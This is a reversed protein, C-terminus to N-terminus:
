KLKGSAVIRVYVNYDALSAFDTFRYLRLRIQKYNGDVSNCNGVFCHYAACSGTFQFNTVEFPLNINIAQSYYVGATGLTGENVPTVKILGNMDVAGSKWKRYRWYGKDTDSDDINWVGIETVFDAASGSAEETVMYRLWDSWESNNWHRIFTTRGYSMTQRVYNKSQLERVELAFGGTTYPSNSMYKSYDAGPSYYCGPTKIDNLDLPASETAVLCTGLKLSDVSGGFIPLGVYVGDNETEQAYRFIGIRRGKHDEPIDITVFDTPIIFQVVDSAGMDDIVGVQVVYATETSSVVGSITKNVTNTSTDSGALLTVWGDDGSFQNGEAVCRYRVTCHNKQVDASTVKSYSRTAKIKLYKGSESLNGASDCRACIIGKEGSAPLIKPDSYPIVAITQTYTRSFGRSDTVTGKVTVSGSSTLYGSTYPSGYSKGGVSMKYSVIHAGYKGEGNTFNADVKTRGNIYLSSFPSPLSNVPSLTMTASPQTTTDNPITLTIEKYGADGIQKSYEADSYTRLTFRLTGKTAEPLRKYVTSLESESLTVTATQQSASKKGLNITKVAIYEGDLNLSINCRNYFSSSKPTYRYTLEGNFYANSGTLSDITSARPITYLAESLSVSTSTLTTEPISGSASISLTKKGNSDHDVTKTATIATVWENETITLYKNSTYKKGDITISFSGTGKTTFGTNNRKYMLSATVKSTNTKIDGVASWEIKADIYQNGTTGLKVGSQTLAM